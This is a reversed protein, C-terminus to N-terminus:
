FSESKRMTQRETNEDRGREVKNERGGNGGMRRERNRLKAKKM